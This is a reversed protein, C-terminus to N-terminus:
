LMMSLRVSCERLTLLLSVETSSFREIVLGASFISLIVEGFNASSIPVELDMLSSEFFSNVSRLVSFAISLVFM